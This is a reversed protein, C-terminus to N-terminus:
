WDKRGPQGLPIGQRLFLRFSFGFHRPHNRLAVAWASSSVFIKFTSILNYAQCGIHDHVSLKINLSAVEALLSPLVKKGIHEKKHFGLSNGNKLNRGRYWASVCEVPPNAWM